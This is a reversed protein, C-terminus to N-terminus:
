WPWVHANAIFLSALRLIPELVAWVAPNRASWHGTLGHGLPLNPADAWLEKRYLPHIPNDLDGLHANHANIIGMDELDKTAFGSLRQIQYQYISLDFAEREVSYSDDMPQLSIPTMGSKGTDKLPPSRARGYKRALDSPTPGQTSSGGRFLNFMAGKKSQSLIEQM